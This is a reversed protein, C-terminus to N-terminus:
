QDAPWPYTSKKVAEYNRDLEPGLLIIAALRRAMETVYEVEEIKLSRGLISKERYSLWKKIVPYGGIYYQWVKAPINSWFAVQNLYIDRTDPGLCQLADPLSLGLEGAGQELAEKELKSYPRVIIKGRGPMCRGEKDAHGWGASLDLEGAEPRLHGGDVRSVVGIAKLEPRIKAMTIGSVGAETDLLAAVQRGLNASAELIKNSDPLPIRPWNQRIGDANAALYKPSYGVALAHMWVFGATHIDKDPNGIGMESLYSIANKSLNARAVVPPHAKKDFDFKIQLKHSAVEFVQFPFHRAHGSISDYDCIFASYLFPPGEPTKDATDRTIFFRNHVIQSQDLLEPAPRSFLPAIDKDLYSIRTDFPKFPYSIIRQRNFKIRKGLINKRTKNADFEGSSKMFAPAVRTIEEDSIKDDFYPILLELKSVEDPFVILSNGRREIPGNFPFDHSLEVVKPWSHYEESINLPRFSFRNILSPNAIQYQKDFKKASLNALLEERKNIGWFHKFRVIPKKDRKEKRVMVCISTGKKIGVRNHKTSFVSPDPLGEPTLKGTERSDGNLCDFWFNDFEKLLNHRMVVFSPEGLYSFNSIYCVIGKGGKVIRREAVRFFRVYLEDLNFKDIGWGGENLPKNLDQKYPEVLGEEEEPSTGAFANYPPNGLIVLIPNKRKVKEAADKEQELEPFARIQSPIRDKPPQEEPEWGTLANTLYVGAREKADESFPAGLNRLLLGIQLHSVVFPAPLIEFGFVREIVAKKLNQALLADKAKEALTRHIQHIVEVLYAGTGCCPDLVYVRPDALGDQIQLEEQLVTHVRAVQYKVIEPPTFWVGHKKRLEPDYAQLFPEYFYQVAHQEEFKEFFRTRLVRNLALGTWDLVEDLGLPKLQQPTTIQNFLSAIMPVKLNWAAARWDFKADLDADEPHKRAWLVWSSFVGYFLTQVLTARFFREGEPGHFKLGLAEELAGRLVSLGPLEEKEEIRAKAERAYSALYWALIEPEELPASHLLVRRLYEVLRDGQAEATKRPQAALAWFKAESEALRFTELKLPNGKEDKGIFVFDRYNTVLIQGYHGWYKTVQEGQATLWSDDSTGKAEIVGRDPSQGPIPKEDKAKQFQNASYLGFDPHGAGSESLTPVCRVRPKLKKGIENLLKELAGYYSTERVAGGTSRIEHLDKLYVEVPHM